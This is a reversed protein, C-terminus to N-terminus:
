SAPKKARTMFSRFFLCMVGYKDRHRDRIGLVYCGVFSGAASDLFEDLEQASFKSIAEAIPWSNLPESADVYEMLGLEPTLPIVGFVLANVRSGSLQWLFNFCQFMSVVAFDPRLDDRKLVILREVGDVSEVRILTPAHGSVFKKVVTVKSVESGDFPNVAGKPVVEFNPCNEFLAITPLLEEEAIFHPLWTPSVRM